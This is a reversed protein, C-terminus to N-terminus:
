ASHRPNSDRRARWSESVSVLAEEKVKPSAKQNTGVRRLYEAEIAPYYKGIPVLWESQQLTLKKDKLLFNEGLTMLIDRKTLLDGEQFHARAYTAFDFARETLELWSEARTETSRLGEDVRALEAKLRTHQSIYEEDDDLLNRTRMDVLGDLQEQVQKRRVQQTAYTKARDVMEAKHSRNLIEVALDRFEPLITYKALEADIQKEMDDVSTYVSQNCPRKDSKRTCFYHIYAVMKGERKVFKQNTKGVISCGCEGCKILGTYAYGNVGTRPKGRKGLITQAYDYDKLSIIPNHGGEYLEGNHRIYGAYFPNNFLRYLSSLGIPGGGTKATRKLIFSWEENAIKRIQRPTYLGSLLMQWMRKVQEIREPDDVTKTVIKDKNRIIGGQDNLVPAKMYGIPVVGPREGTSAKQTMGRRVDKGQKSSEYQSQNMVMQLMMIGEPSNDFNYSCFKLDKLPGRLDYTVRAADYENRAIRNPHWAIIGDAEGREIMDLMQNFIPRGPTFASKSEPEMWKIINLDSFRQKIEVIQAPHSLEQREKREESKRVYAIYRISSNNHSMSM